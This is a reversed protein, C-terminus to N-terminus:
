ESTESASMSENRCDIVWLDYVPHELASLAPSSAFMWGRFLGVVEGSIRHDIVEMFAADEPQEEPPRTKCAEVKIELTGFRVPEGVPADFTTIRATIKDLGRLM